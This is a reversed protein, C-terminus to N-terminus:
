ENTKNKTKDQTGETGESIKGWFTVVPQELHFCFVSFTEISLDDTMTQHLM